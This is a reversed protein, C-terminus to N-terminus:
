FLRLRRLFLLFLVALTFFPHSFFFVFVAVALTSIVVGWAAIILMGVLPHRAHTRLGFYAQGFDNTFDRPNVKFSSQGSHFRGDKSSEAKASYYDGAKQNTSANPQESSETRVTFMTGRPDTFTREEMRNGHADTFVRTSESRFFPRFAQEKGGFERSVRSGSGGASSRRMEEELDRFIQDVRMGGFIDRFLRDAEEKSMHQYGPPSQHTYAASSTGGGGMFPPAGRQMDYEKRRTKNGVVHYAESIRKFTDEAGPDSNRDPHYQLALKKYAAKIEDVSADPRVGLLNYYDTDGSSSQWRRAHMMAGATASSGWMTGRANVSPLACVGPRRYLVRVYPQTPTCASAATHLARLSPVGSAATFLRRM